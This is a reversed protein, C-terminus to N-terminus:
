KEKIKEFKSKEKKQPSYIKSKKMIFKWIRSASSVVAVLQHIWKECDTSFINFPESFLNSFLRWLIHSMCYSDYNNAFRPIVGPLTATGLMTFTKGTGTPGYAFVSINTGRIASEVLHAVNEDFIDKQEANEDYVRSFFIWLTKLKSPQFDFFNIDSKRDRYHKQRIM